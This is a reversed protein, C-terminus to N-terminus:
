YLLVMLSSTGKTETSERTSPPHPSFTQTSFSFSHISSDDYDDDSDDDDDDFPVCSDFEDRTISKRGSPLLFSPYKSKMKLPSLVAAADAFTPSFLKPRGLRTSNSDTSHTTAGSSLPVVSDKNAHLQSTAIVLPNVDDKCFSSDEYVSSMDLHHESDASTTLSKEEDEEHRIRPNNYMFSPFLLKKSLKRSLEPPGEVCLPNDDVFYSEQEYVCLLGDSDNSGGMRPEPVTDYNPVFGNKKSNEQWKGELHIPNDIPDVLGDANSEKYIACMDLHDTSCHSTSLFDTKLSSSSQPVPTGWIPASQPERKTFLITPSVIESDMPKICSSSKSDEEIVTVEIDSSVPTAAFPTANTNALTKSSNAPTGKASVSTMLRQKSPSPSEKEKLSYIVKFCFSFLYTGM